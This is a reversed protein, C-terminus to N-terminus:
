FQQRHTAWRYLFWFNTIKMWSWCDIRFQFLSTQVLFPELLQNKYWFERHYFNQVGSNKGDISKSAYNNFIIQIFSLVYQKTPRFLDIPHSSDLRSRICSKRLCTLVEIELEWLELDIEPILVNFVYSFYSSCLGSALVNCFISGFKESVMRSLSRHFIEHREPAKTPFNSSSDEKWAIECFNWVVYQSTFDPNESSVRVMISYISPWHEPQLIWSNRSMSTPKSTAASELFRKEVRDVQRIAIPLDLRKSM